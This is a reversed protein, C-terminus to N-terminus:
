DFMSLQISNEHKDLKSRERNYACNECSINSEPINKTNIINIMKEIESPIWSSDWNYEILTESFKLQGNFEDLSRNANCVYFYSKDSVNHGMESLIFAYFDIQKKYNERYPSSLYNKQSVNYYSAQSKYDVVIIKNNRTDQWIDDIGGSLIINTDKFRCKIGHHLSDRWKDLDSHSFPIIHQLNNKLHIRHPLKNKRCEDFEKKLLIDTTENLTWGPLSPTILGNVRDLYFCKQCSLFDIFKGRSIQFDEKQGPKYITNSKLRKGNAPILEYSSNRKLSIL